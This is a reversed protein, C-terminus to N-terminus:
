GCMSAYASAMCRLNSIVEERSHSTASIHNLEKSIPSYERELVFESLKEKIGSLNTTPLKEIAAWVEILLRHKNDYNLREDNESNFRGKDILTKIAQEDSWLAYAGSGFVFLCVVAMIGIIFKYVKLDFVEM